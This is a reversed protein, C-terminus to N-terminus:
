PLDWERVVTVRLREAGPSMELARAQQRLWAATEARGLAKPMSVKDTTRPKRKM